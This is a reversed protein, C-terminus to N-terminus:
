AAHTAGFDDGKGLFVDGVRSSQEGGAVGAVALRFREQGLEFVRDRRDLGLPLALAGGSNELTM